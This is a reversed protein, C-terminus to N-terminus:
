KEVQFRGGEQDIVKIIDGYGNRKSLLSGRFSSAITRKEDQSKKMLQDDKKGYHVVTITTSKKPFSDNRM